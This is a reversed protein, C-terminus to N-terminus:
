DLTGQQTALAKDREEEAKMRESFCKRWYHSTVGDEEEITSLLNLRRTSIGRPDPLRNLIADEPATPLMDEFESTVEEVTKNSISAIDEKNAFAGVIKNKSDLLLNIAGYGSLLTTALGVENVYKYGKYAVGGMVGLGVICASSKPHEKVPASLLDILNNINKTSLQVTVPLAPSSVISLPALLLDSVLKAAEEALEKSVHDGCYINNVAILLLLVIRKM